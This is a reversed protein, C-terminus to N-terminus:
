KGLAFTFIAAGAAVAIYQKGESQYSIPNSKMAGGTQFRWLSKGNAADLAFIDGEETGGFILGGATSLVGSWPPSKLKFEWKIVGTLADLRTAEVLAESQRNLRRQAARFVLHLLVAVVLAASLTVLIVERRTTDLEALVPRADRWVAVVAETQGGAILPLFERILPYSAAPADTAETVADTDVRVKRAGIM